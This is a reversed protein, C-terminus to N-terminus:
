SHHCARLRSEHRQNVDRRIEQALDRYAKAGNTYSGPGRTELQNDIRIEPKFVKPEFLEAGHERLLLPIEVLVSQTLKLKDMHTVVVGLFEAANGTLANTTRLTRLMNRTGALSVNRPRIPALVYHAAALAARTFVSMAPPTDIIIWDPQQGGFPKIEESALRRVDHMFQLEIDPRGGGGYDRLTLFPDSPIIALYGPNTPAETCRALNRLEYGHPKATHLHSFYDAISPFPQVGAIHKGVTEPLCWETLNAQGDLDILLVREGRMALEAGLYYTTTTKAVGGKNNAVTLIKTKGTCPTEENTIFYEPSLCTPADDDDRQSGRIYNIYRVLQDGNVLHLQSAIAREYEEDTFTGRTFVFTKPTRDAVTTGIHMHTTINATVQLGIDSAVGWRIDQHQPQQLQFPVQEPPHAAAMKITYGARQLVYRVFAEFQQSTFENLASLSPERFIAEFQTDRQEASM